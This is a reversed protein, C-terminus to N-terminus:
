SDKVDDNTDIGDLRKFAGYDVVKYIRGPYQMSGLSRWVCQTNVNSITKAPMEFFTKGRDDSFSLKVTADTDNNIQGISGLVYAAFARRAYYGHLVQQAFAEREFPQSPLGTVPHDDRDSDTSLFYLSGNADDGVVVSSGYGSALAEGGQWNVGSFAKWLTDDGSGWNSWAKTLNDYVLTRDNGLRLVYFDHGDLTFTWVRVAPDGVSGRGLATVYVQSVQLVNQTTVAATGYAVSVRASATPFNAAVLTYSQSASINAASAM